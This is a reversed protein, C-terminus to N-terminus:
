RRNLINDPFLSKIFKRFSLILTSLLIILYLKEALWGPLPLHFISLLVHSLANSNLGNNLNYFLDINSYDNFIIANILRSNYLHAPGDQTIFYHGLFLPYLTILLVAFFLHKEKLIRTYFPNSNM